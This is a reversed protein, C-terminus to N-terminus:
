RKAVDRDLVGTAPLGDKIRYASLENLVRNIIQEDSDGGMGYKHLRDKGSQSIAITTMKEKEPIETRKREPM